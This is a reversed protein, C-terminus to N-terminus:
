IKTTNAQCLVKSKVLTVKQKIEKLKCARSLIQLMSIRWTLNLSCDIKWKKSSEMYNEILSVDDVYLLLYIVHDGVLKFYM